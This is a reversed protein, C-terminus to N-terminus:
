RRTELYRLVTDIAEEHEGPHWTVRDLDDILRQFDAMLDIRRHRSILSVTTRLLRFCHRVPAELADDFQERATRRPHTSAKSETGREQHGQVAEPEVGPGDSNEPRM